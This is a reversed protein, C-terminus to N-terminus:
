FICQLQNSEIEIENDYNCNLSKKFLFKLALNECFEEKKGRVREILPKNSFIPNKKVRSKISLNFLFM